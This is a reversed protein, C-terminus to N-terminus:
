ERVVQPRYLGRLSVALALVLYLLPILSALLASLHEAELGVNLALELGEVFVVEKVEHEIHAGFCGEALLFFLLFVIRLQKGHQPLHPSPVAVQSRDVM